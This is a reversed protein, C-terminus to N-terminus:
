RDGEGIRLLLCHDSAASLIAAETVRTGFQLFRLVADQCDKSSGGIGAYQIGALVELEQSHSRKSMQRDKRSKGEHAERSSAPWRTIWERIVGPACCSNDPYAM